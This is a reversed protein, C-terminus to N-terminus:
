KKQAKADVNRSEYAKRYPTYVRRGDPYVHYMGKHDRAGVVYPLGKAHLDQKAKRAMEAMAEDIEAKSMDFLSKECTKRYPTFVRSGDPYVAYRGTGDGAGIHYPHGKAHLDQQAKHAVKATREDKEKKSM